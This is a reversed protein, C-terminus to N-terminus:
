FHNLAGLIGTNCIIGKPAAAQISDLLTVTGILELVWNVGSPFLQKVQAAIQGNDIVVYDTGNKHLADKKNKNRTTAAVILGLQKAISVSYTNSV